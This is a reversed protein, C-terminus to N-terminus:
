RVNKNYILSIPLGMCLILIVMGIIDQVHTNNLDATNSLPLVILNMVCWIVLGYVIGIFYINAKHLRLELKPYFYFFLTTWLFAILYHFLGGMYIMFSGREFAAQGFVGSAIFRFIRSVHEGGQALFNFMAATIDATGAVLTTIGIKKFSLRLDRIKIRNIQNM